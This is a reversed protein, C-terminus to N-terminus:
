SARKSKICKLQDKMKEDGDKIYFIMNSINKANINITFKWFLSSPGGLKLAVEFYLGRYAVLKVAHAFNLRSKETAVTSM